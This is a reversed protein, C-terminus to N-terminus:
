VIEWQILYAYKVIDKVKTPRAIFDITYGADTLIKKDENSLYGFYCHVRGKEVAKKIAKNIVGMRCDDSYHRAERANM